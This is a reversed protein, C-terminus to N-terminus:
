AAPEPDAPLAAPPAGSGPRRRNHNADKYQERIAAIYAEAEQHNEVPCIHAIFRSRNIEQQVCAEKAVTEYLVM